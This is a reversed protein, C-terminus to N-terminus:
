PIYNADIAVSQDDTGSGANVSRNQPMLLLLQGLGEGKAFSATQTEGGALTVSEPLGVYAQANDELSIKMWVNPNGLYDDMEVASAENFITAVKMTLMGDSGLALKTVDAEIVVVTSHDYNTMPLEDILGASYDEEAKAAPDLAAQEYQARAARVKGADLLVSMFQNENTATSLGKVNGLPIGALEQDPIQDGNSDILVSVECANWTTMPEFVKVGVQLVKLTKGDVIKNVLRYGVAQLDCAKSM